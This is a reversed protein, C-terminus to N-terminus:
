PKQTIPETVFLACGQVTGLLKEGRASTVSDERARTESAIDVTQLQIMRELNPLQELISGLSPLSGEFIAEFPLARLQQIGLEQMETPEGTQFKSLVAGKDAALQELLVRLRHRQAGIPFRQLSIEIEKMLAEAEHLDASEKLEDRLQLRHSLAQSQEVSLTRLDSLRWTGWLPVGAMLLLLVSSAAIRATALLRSSRNM